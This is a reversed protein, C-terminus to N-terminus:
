RKEIELTMIKLKEEVSIQGSITGSSKIATINSDMMTQHNGNFNMSFNVVLDPDCHVQINSYEYDSESYEEFERALRSTVTQVGEFNEGDITMEPDVDFFDNLYLDSFKYYDVKKFLKEVLKLVENQLLFPDEGNTHKEGSEFDTLEMM